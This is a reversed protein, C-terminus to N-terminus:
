PLVKTILFDVGRKQLMSYDELEHLGRLTESLLAVSCSKLRRIYAAEKLLKVRSRPNLPDVLVGAWKHPGSTQVEFESMRGFVALPSNLYDSLESGPVNFVWSIVRSPANRLAISVPGRLGYTRINIALIPPRSPGFGPNKCLDEIAVSLPQGVLYPAKAVIAEGDQSCCVDVVAGDFYSANLTRLQRPANQDCALIKM